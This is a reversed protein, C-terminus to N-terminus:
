IVGHCAAAAPLPPPDSLAKAHCVDQMKRVEERTNSLVMDSKMFLCQTMRRRCGVGGWGVYSIVFGSLSLM